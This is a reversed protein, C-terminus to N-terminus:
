SYHYVLEDNKNPGIIRWHFIITEPSWILNGLYTDQGCLHADVSELKNCQISTLHFLFVPRNSGHRLHELTILTADLDLSWRFANSFSTHPTHEIHWSGKEQFTIVNPSPMLLHVNAKGTRTVRKEGIRSTTTLSLTKVKLLREWFASLEKRRSKERKWEKEGSLKQKHLFCYEKKEKPSLLTYGKKLLAELEWRLPFLPNFEYIRIKGTLHSILVGEKELRYLARQIPTLPLNLLNQLQAGYCRENVFLFFLIKEIKKNGVLASLM